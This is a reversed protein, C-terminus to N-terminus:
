LRKLNKKKKIDGTASKKKVVKAKKDLGSNGDMTNSQKLVDSPSINQSMRNLVFHEGENEKSKPSALTADHSSNDYLSKPRGHISAMLRARQAYEDYSEMFLKGAEDNLSSEPFPVILLCRIVGLVHSMTVTPTWDKKLTNVCIAGTSPDVNPHYIKTLFFGRPPSNPFDSPIILKIHFYREHYPTGEPGSIEAMLENLAHPLGTEPDVILKCGEPPNKILDRVEKGVRALTKPALSESMSNGKSAYSSSALFSASSM